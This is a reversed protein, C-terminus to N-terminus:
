ELWMGNELFPDFEKYGAVLAFRINERPLQCIGQGYGCKGVQCKSLLDDDITYSAVVTVLLLRLMAVAGNDESGLASAKVKAIAATVISRARLTHRRHPPPSSDVVSSRAGRRDLGSKYASRSSRLM